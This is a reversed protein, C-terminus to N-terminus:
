TTGAALRQLAGRVEDVLVPKAWCDDSGAARARPLADDRLEATCLVAPLAPDGVAARLRPLLALGDTDPLHLDVFEGNTGATLNFAHDCTGAQVDLALKRACGSAAFQNDGRGSGNVTM